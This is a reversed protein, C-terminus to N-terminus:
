QAPTSSKIQPRIQISKATISGDTNVTGTVSVQIGTTLDNASGAATKTITTSTDLFIIKSGTSTNTATPDGNMIQVTISNVDKSIIQGSIFGGGATRAGRNMAGFQGIRSVGGTATQNKGFSMGVFFVGVLVVIGLVISVIKKNKSM